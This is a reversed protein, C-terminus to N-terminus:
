AGASGGLPHVYVENHKILSNEMLVLDFGRLKGEKGGEGIECYWRGCFGGQIAWVTEPIYTM